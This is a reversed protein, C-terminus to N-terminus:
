VRKKFQIISYTFWVAWVLITFASVGKIMWCYTSCFYNDTAGLVCSLCGILAFVIYNAFALFVLLLGFKIYLTKM